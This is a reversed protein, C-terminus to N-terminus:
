NPKNGDPEILKVPIVKEAEIRAQKKARLDQIVQTALQDTAAKKLKNAFFIESKSSTEPRLELLMGALAFKQTETNSTPLNAMKIIKDSWADFEPLTRPLPKNVEISSPTDNEDRKNWFM